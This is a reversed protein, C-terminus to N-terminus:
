DDQTGIVVYVARTRVLTGPAPTVDKLDFLAHEFPGDVSVEYKMGRLYAHFEAAEEASDVVVQYFAKV